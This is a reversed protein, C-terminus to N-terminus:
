EHEKQNETKLKPMEIACCPEKCQCCEAHNQANVRMCKIEQSFQKYAQALSPAACHKMKQIPDM